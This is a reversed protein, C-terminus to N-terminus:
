RTGTVAALQAAVGPLGLENAAATARELLSQARPADGDADRALLAPSRSSPGGGLAIQQVDRVSMVLTPTGFYYSVGTVLGVVRVPHGSVPVTQGLHLGLATDALVEGEASPTRGTGVRPAGIGGFRLGLVNVDRLTAGRPITSRFVVIPDARRVGPEAAVIAADTEPILATATFPGSTGLAVLWADAEFRRAIHNNEAHMSSTIGTMLLTMAFVLATALVAILFRRRRWQLDRLGLLWV